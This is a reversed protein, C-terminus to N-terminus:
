GPLRSLAANDIKRHYHMGALGGLIAGIATVVLVGLFLIWAGTTATDANVPIAPMQLSSLANTTTGAVAAVLTVLIAAIIGTLWVAIGQRMGNFRAMRGAVYGGCYYALFLVTLLVIGGIVASQTANAAASDAAAGASTNAAVIAAGAASLLSAIVAATGIAALWGFIAAGIKVGGFMERERAIVEGRTPVASGEMTSNEHRSTGFMNAM